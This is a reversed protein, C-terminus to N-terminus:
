PQITLRIDLGVNLPLEVVSLNVPSIPIPQSTPWVTQPNTMQMVNFDKQAILHGGMTLRFEYCGPAPFILLPINIEFDSTKLRDGILITKKTLGDEIRIHHFAHTRITASAAPTM